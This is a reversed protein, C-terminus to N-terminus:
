SYYINTVGNTDLRTSNIANWKNENFRLMNKIYLGNFWSFDPYNAAFKGNSATPAWTLSNYMTLAKNFQDGYYYNNYVARKIDKIQDDKLM